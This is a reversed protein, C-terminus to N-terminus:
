KKNVFDEQFKYVSKLFYIPYQWLTVQNTVLRRFYFRMKLKEGVKIVSVIINHTKKFAKTITM